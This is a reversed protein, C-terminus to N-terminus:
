TRPLIDTAFREIQEVREDITMREGDPRKSLTLNIRDVGADRYDAIDDLVDQQTGVMVEESGAYEDALWANVNVGIRPQGERDYDSWAAHLRDRGDAVEAPSRGSIVWGVADYEAARRFAASSSGGLWLPPGDAQIPRPYLGVLDFEYYQGDYAVRDSSRAADYIDLFENTRAGREAPPVGLAEFEGEFWGAGVGFEFRGDSLQDVTYIEKLLDIPHRYPAVCVNTGIRIEDTECAAMTLVSFLDAAPRTGSTPDDPTAPFVIRDGRGVWAFGAEEAAVATRRWGEPTAYDDWRPLFAGFELDRESM